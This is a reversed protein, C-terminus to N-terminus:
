RGALSRLYARIEETPLPGAVPENTGGGGRRISQPPDGGEFSREAIKAWSAKDIVTLHLTQKVGKRGNAYEGVVRDTVRVQVIISAEQPTAAQLEAWQGGYSEHLHHLERKGVDIIAVKGPTAKVPGPAPPAVWKDMEAAFASQEAARNSAQRIAMFVAFGILPVMLVVLWVWPPVKPKAPDPKRAPPPQDAPDRRRGSAKKPRPRDDSPNARRPEGPDDAFAYPDSTRDAM